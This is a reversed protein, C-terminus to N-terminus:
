PNRLCPRWSLVNNYSPRVGKFHREVAPGTVSVGVDVCVCVLVFLSMFQRGRPNLSNHAHWCRNLQISPQIESDTTKASFFFVQDYWGAANKMRGVLYYRGPALREGGAFVDDVSRCFFVCM